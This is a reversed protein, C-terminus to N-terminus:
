NPSDFPAADRHRFPPAPQVQGGVRAVIDAAVDRLKRNTNRSHSRLLDFAATADCRQQAMLIGIAQDITTRSALARELDKMTAEQRAQRHMVASAGAAQAAFIEVDRREEPTFAHPTFGYLNLVGLFDGDIELPYSLSSGVGARLARDRFGPWRQEGALDDVEIPVGTRLAQLCPGHGEAYQIEDVQEARELVVLQAQSAVAYVVLPLLRPRM